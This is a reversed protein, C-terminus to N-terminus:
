LAFVLNISAVFHVLCQDCKGNSVLCQRFVKTELPFENTKPDHTKKQHKSSLLSVSSFEPLNNERDSDDEMSFVTTEHALPPHNHLSTGAGDPSPQTPGLMSTNNNIHSNPSNFLNPVPFSVSIVRM